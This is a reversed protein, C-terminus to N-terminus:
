RNIAKKIIEEINKDNYKIVLFKYGNSLAYEKKISDRYQQAAFTRISKHIYINYKYHLEGNYEILINYNPLYFDYPLKKINKCDPFTKQSIYEISNKNLIKAVLLEGKSLNCKPCGCKLNIHIVPLQEFDGHIPCTITIKTYANIYKSKKYSYTKGHIEKAEKKFQDTTKTRKLTGNRSGCKPCGNGMLHCLPLQLFKGHISCIIIVKTHNNVYVVKSYDYKNDHIKMAKTIFKETTSSLKFSRSILSCQPCGHKHNLHNNPTQRFEGHIPCIIVVNKFIGIYVVKSYDYKFGYIATARDTFKKITLKRM